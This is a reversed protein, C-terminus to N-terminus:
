RSGGIPEVISKSADGCRLVNRQEGEPEFVNRYTNLYYPFRDYKNLIPPNYEERRTFSDWLEKNQKQMTM